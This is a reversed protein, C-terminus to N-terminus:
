QAAFCYLFGAGGTTALAPPACGRTAHSANWSKAADSDNLGLRDSHGVMAAGDGGNTWNACTMDKDAPLARGDTGSGTFIDHNNNNFGAGAIKRGTETLSTDLGLRNAAHLTEVNAAIEVGKANRWPGAGIRERANVADAGQTSLYARWTKAGAGATTALAQCHKDAGALGGFDGGNPGPKSTVFFTMDPFQPPQSAPQQAWAQASALWALAVGLGMALPKAALPRSASPSVALPNASATM